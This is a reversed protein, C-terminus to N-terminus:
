GQAAPPVELPLLRAPDPLERTEPRSTAETRGQRTATMVLERAHARSARVRGEESSLRRGCANTGAAPLLSGTGRVFESGELIYISVTHLGAAVLAAAIKPFERGSTAHSKTEVSALRLADIPALDTSGPPAPRTVHHLVGCGAGAAASGGLLLACALPRSRRPACPIDQAPIAREREHRV